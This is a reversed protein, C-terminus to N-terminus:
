QRKAANSAIQEFFGVLLSMLQEGASGNGVAAASTDPSSAPAGAYVRLLDRVIRRTEEPRIEPRNVGARDAAADMDAATIRDVDSPLIRGNYSTVLEFAIATAKRRRNHDEYVHEPLGSPLSHQALPLLDPLPMCAGTTRTAYTNRRVSPCAPDGRLWARAQDPTCGETLFALQAAVDKANIRSALEDAEDHVADHAAWFDLEPRAGNNFASGARAHAYEEVEEDM